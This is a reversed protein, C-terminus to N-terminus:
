EVVTNWVLIINLSGALKNVDEKGLGTYLVIKDGPEKARIMREAMENARNQEGIGIGEERGEERGQEKFLLMTEEENYETICMSKVEARHGVLFPRIEFDEPLEDIAQDVAEEIDKHKSYERIRQILWAYEGLPKCADMLEKNQGYNINLMRVRVAIDPEMEKSRGDPDPKRSEEAETDGPNQKEKGARFADKLELIRDMYNDQGNYFVVLKPIPLAVLTDGYINLKNEHIYKDYLKAAYMLERVPMNPNYTAQQEYISMIDTIIFSVDNKMGMYLIDEMTTIQISDPDTHFSHNVANYLSLTWRKNEERGFLFCFLRDKHKTNIM